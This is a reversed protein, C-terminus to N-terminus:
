FSHIDYLIGQLGPAYGALAGRFRIEFESLPATLAYDIRALDRGMQM